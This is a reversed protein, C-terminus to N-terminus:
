LDNVRKAKKFHPIGKVEYVSRRVFIFKLVKCSLLIISSKTRRKLIILPSESIFKESYKINVVDVYM